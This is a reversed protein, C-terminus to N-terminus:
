MFQKCPNMFEWANYYHTYFCHKNFFDQPLQKVNEIQLEFYM